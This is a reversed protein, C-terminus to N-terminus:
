FYLPNQFINQIKYKALVPNFGPNQCFIFPPKNQWGENGQMIWNFDSTIVRMIKVNKCIHSVWAYM